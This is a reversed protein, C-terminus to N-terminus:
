TPESISLLLNIIKKSSVLAVANGNKYLHANGGDSIVFRSFCITVGGVRLWAETNGTNIDIYDTKNLEVYKADKKIKMEILEAM